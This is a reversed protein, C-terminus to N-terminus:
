APAGSSCRTQAAFGRLAPVSVNLHHASHILTTHRTHSSLTGNTASAGGVIQFLAMGMMEVAAARYVGADRYEATSM